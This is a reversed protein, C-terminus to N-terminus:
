VEDGKMERRSACRQLMFVNLKIKIEVQREKEKGQFFNALFCM